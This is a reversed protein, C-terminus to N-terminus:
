AICGRLVALPQFSTNLAWTGYFDKVLEKTQFASIKEQSCHIKGKKVKMFDVAYKKITKPWDSSFLDVKGVNSFSSRPLPRTLLALKFSLKNEKLKSAIYSAIILTDSSQKLHTNTMGVDCHHELFREGLKLYSWTIFHIVNTSASEVNNIFPCTKHPTRTTLLRPNIM